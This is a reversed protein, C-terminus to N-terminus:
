LNMCSFLGFMFTSMYVFLNGKRGSVSSLSVDFCFSGIFSYECGEWDSLLGVKCVWFVWVVLCLVCMVVHFAADSFM